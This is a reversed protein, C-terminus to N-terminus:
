QKNNGAQKSSYLSHITLLARQLSVHDAEGGPIMAPFCPDPKELILTITHHRFAEWPKCSPLVLVDM